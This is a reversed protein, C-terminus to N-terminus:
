LAVNNKMSKHSDIVQPKAGAAQCPKAATDPCRHAGCRLGESRQADAPCVSLSDGRLAIRLALLHADGPSTRQPALLRGPAEAAPLSGQENGPSWPLRLAGAHARPEPSPAPPLPLGPQLCAPCHCEGPLQGHCRSVLPARHLALLTLPAQDRVSGRGGRSWGQSNGVPCQGAVGQGTETREQSAGVLRQGMGADGSWSGHPVMRHRNGARGGSLQQRGAGASMGGGRGPGAPARCRKVIGRGQSPVPRPVAGAWEGSGRSGEGPRPVPSSSPCCCCCSRWRGRWTALQAAVGPAAPAARAAVAVPVLPPCPASRPSM